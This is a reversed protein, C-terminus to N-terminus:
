REKFFETIEINFVNAIQNLASLSISKNCKSSEIKSLYSVSIQASDALQVQTMNFQNRYYKINLGIVHYLENDKSFKM